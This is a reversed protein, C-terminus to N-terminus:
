EAQNAWKGPRFTTIGPEGVFILVTTLVSGVFVVFIVPNRVQVRPDLKRFADLTARAVIPPDFLKQAKASM